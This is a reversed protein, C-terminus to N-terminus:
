RDTRIQRRAPAGARLDIPYRSAVAPAPRFLFRAATRPVTEGHGAAFRDPNCIIARTHELHRRHVGRYSMM